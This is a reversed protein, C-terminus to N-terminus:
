LALEEAQGGDIYFQQLVDIRSALLGACASRNQIFWFRIHWSM